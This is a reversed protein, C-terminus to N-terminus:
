LLRPCFYSTHGVGAIGYVWFYLVIVYALPWEPLDRNPCIPSSLVLTYPRYSYYLFSRECVGVELRDITMEVLGLIFSPVYSKM